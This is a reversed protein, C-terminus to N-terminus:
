YFNNWIVWVVVAVVAVIVVAAYLIGAGMVVLIGNNSIGFNGFSDVATGAALVLWFHFYIGIYGTLWLFHRAHFNAPFQPSPWM